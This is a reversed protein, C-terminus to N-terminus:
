IHVDSRERIVSVRPIALVAHIARATRACLAIHQRRSAPASEFASKQRQQATSLSAQSWYCRWSSHSHLQGIAPEHRNRMRLHASDTSRRAAATRDCMATAKGGAVVDMRSNLQLRVSTASEEAVCVRGYQICGGFELGQLIFVLGFRLRDVLLVWVGLCSTLM